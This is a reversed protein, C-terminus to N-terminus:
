RNTVVPHKIQYREDSLVVQKAQHNKTNIIVPAKLNATMKQLDDPVTVIAFVLIDKDSEIKLGTVTEDDLNFNYGQEIYWPNIVLFYLEENVISQLWYLGEMETQILVFDRYSEFGPLGEAFVLVESYNGTEMEIRQQM